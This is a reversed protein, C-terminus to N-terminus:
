IFRCYFNAFGYFVQIDRVSKPDPWNKVEEIRKDEIQIGQASVIYGLFRIKDQYFQCM